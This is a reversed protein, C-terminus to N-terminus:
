LDGNQPNSIEVKFNEKVSGQPVHFVIRDTKEKIIPENLFIPIFFGKSSSFVTNFFEVYPKKDYVIFCDGIEYKHMRMGYNEKLIAYYVQRGRVTGCGLFFSGSTENKNSLASLEVSVVKQETIFSNFAMLFMESMMFALWAYILSFAFATFSTFIISECDERLHKFMIFSAVVVVIAAILISLNM